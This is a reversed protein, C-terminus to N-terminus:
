ELRQVLEAQLEGNQMTGRVYVEDGIQIADVALAEGDSSRVASPSAIFSIPATGPSQELRM